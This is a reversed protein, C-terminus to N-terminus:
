INSEGEVISEAQISHLSNPPSLKKPKRITDAADRILKMADQRGIVGGYTPGSLHGAIEYLYRHLQNRDKIRQRAHAFQAGYAEAEQEIRFAPDKFFRKWWINAVNEDAQQQEIHCMEHAILDETITGGAPNYITNGYTFYVIQGEKLGFAKVAEDWVPPKENRISIM